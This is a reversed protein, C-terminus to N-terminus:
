GSTSPAADIRAEIMPVNKTLTEAVAALDHVRQVLAQDDDPTM